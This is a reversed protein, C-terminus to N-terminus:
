ELCDRHVPEGRWRVSDEHNLPQNCVYCSLTRATEDDTGPRVVPSGALPTDSVM